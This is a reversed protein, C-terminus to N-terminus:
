LENIIKYVEAKYENAEMPANIVALKNFLEARSIMDGSTQDEDCRNSVIKEVIEKTATEIGEKFGDKYGYNYVSRVRNEISRLMDGCCASADKNNDINM